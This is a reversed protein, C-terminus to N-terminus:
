SEVNSVKTLNTWRRRLNYLEFEIRLQRPMIREKVGSEGKTLQQTRVRKAKGEDMRLVRLANAVESEGNTTSRAKKCAEWLETLGNMRVYRAKFLGAPSDTVSDEVCYLHKGEVEFRGWIISKGFYPNKEGRNLHLKRGAKIVENNSPSPVEFVSGEFSFEVRSNLPWDHYLRENKRSQLVLGAVVAVLLLLGFVSLAKRGVQLTKM